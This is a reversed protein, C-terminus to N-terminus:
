CSPYFSVQFPQFPLHVRTPVHCLFWTVWGFRIFGEEVARPDHGTWPFSIGRAISLVLSLFASSIRRVVSGRDSPSVSVLECTSAGGGGRRGLRPNTQSASSTSVIFGVLGGADEGTQLRRGLRAPSLDSRFALWAQPNTTFKKRCQLIPYHHMGRTERAFSPM